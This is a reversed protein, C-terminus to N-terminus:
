YLKRFCDTVGITSCISNLHILSFQFRPSMQVMGELDGGNVEKERTDHFRSGRKLSIDPVTLTLKRARGALEEVLLDPSLCLM